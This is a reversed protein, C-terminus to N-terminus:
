FKCRLAPLELLRSDYCRVGLSLRLAKLGECAGLVQFLVEENWDKRMHNLYYDGLDLVTTRFRSTGESARFSELQASSRFVAERWLVEQALPAWQRCTLAAALLDPYDVRSRLQEDPIECLNHELIRLVLENPLSTIGVSSDGSEEM